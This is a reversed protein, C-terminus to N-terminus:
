VVCLISRRSIIKMERGILFTGSGVISRAVAVSASCHLEEPLEDALAKQKVLGSDYARVTQSRTSRALVCARSNRFSSM